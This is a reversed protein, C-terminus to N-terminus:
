LISLEEQDVAHLMTKLRNLEREENEKQDVSLSLAKRRRKSIKKKGTTFEFADNTPSAVVRCHKVATESCDDSSAASNAPDSFDEDSTHKRAKKDSAKSTAPSPSADSAASNQTVFECDEDDLDM